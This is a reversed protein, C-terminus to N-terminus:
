RSMRVAQVPVFMARAWFENQEVEGVKLNWIGLNEGAELPRGEFVSKGFEKRAM